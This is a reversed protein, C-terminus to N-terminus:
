AFSRTMEDTRQDSYENALSEAASAGDAKIVYVRLADYISREAPIDHFADWMTRKADAGRGATQYIGALLLRARPSSRDAAVLKQADEIALQHQGARSRLEARARLADPNGSDLRIASDLRELGAREQGSRALAAGYLVNATINTATVPVTALDRTLDAVAQWQGALSLFRAMAVRKDGSAQRAAALVSGVVIEQKGMEIWPALLRDIDPAQAVSLGEITDSKAAPLSGARLGNEILRARLSQDKEQWRLLSRATWAADSWREQLEYISLLARLSLQDSPQREVQERLLSVAEGSDGALLLIRAKLIKASPDFPTTDLLLGAQKNAADLDGRRLAVYGYTLRVAPDEPAVLELEKARQEAQQLNGARLAMQTLVGLVFPDARNLEYARQFANFAGGVDGLQLNLKGLEVWYEAVTDDVAVLSALAIRARPLDGAASAAQYQDFAQRARDQRSDCGVLLLSGALMPLLLAVSKLRVIM